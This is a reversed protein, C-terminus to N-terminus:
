QAVLRAALATVIAACAAYVVIAFVAIGSRSTIADPRFEFWVFTTWEYPFWVGPKCPNTLTDGSRSWGLFHYTGGDAKFCKGMANRKGDIDYGKDLLHGIAWIKGSRIRTCWRIVGAGAKTNPCEEANGQEDLWKATYPPDAVPRSLDCACGEAPGPAPTPTPIVPNVPVVPKVVKKFYAFYEPFMVELWERIKM